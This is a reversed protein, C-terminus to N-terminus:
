FLLFKSNSSTSKRKILPLLDERGKLFDPHKFEIIMGDQSYKHFGYLNLQRVFSSFNKHKFYKPLIKQAFEHENHVIFGDGSENWWIISKNKADELISFTKAIFQPLNRNVESAEDESNSPSHSVLEPKVNM